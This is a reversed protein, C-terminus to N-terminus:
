ILKKLLLLKQSNFGEHRYKIHICFTACVSNAQDDVCNFRPM